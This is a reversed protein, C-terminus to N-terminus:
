HPEVQPTRDDHVLVQAGADRRDPGCAVHDAGFLLALHGRRDARAVAGDDGVVGERALWRAPDIMPHDGAGDEGVGLDAHNPQGVLLGDTGAMAAPAVGDGHSQYRTRPGDTVGAPQDLHHGVRVRVLHKADGQQALAGCLHDVLRRHAQAEAGGDVVEDVQQVDVRGYRLRDLDHRDRAVLIRGSERTAGLLPLAPAVATTKAVATAGVSLRRSQREPRPEGNSRVNRWFAANSRTAMGTWRSRRPPACAARWSAFACIRIRRWAGCPRPWREPM